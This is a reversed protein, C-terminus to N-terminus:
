MILIYYTRNFIQRRKDDASLKQLCNPVLDPGVFCLAQDSDLSNPSM